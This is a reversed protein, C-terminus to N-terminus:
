IKLHTNVSVMTQSTQQYVYAFIGVVCLRLVVFALGTLRSVRKVARRGM